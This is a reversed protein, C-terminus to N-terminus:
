PNDFLAALDITVDPMAVPRIVGDRYVTEDYTGDPQRRWVTITREYPQIRWIELDGRRQYEPIKANVDYNGTSRSWIEVVLPLPERFIALTGPRGKFEQGFARPVVVLDPVYISGPSPRVRWDNIAIAFQRLDLQQGILLGLRYAVDGHEWSVGPKERVEGEYLELQRDPSAFVLQIYEEETLQHTATM